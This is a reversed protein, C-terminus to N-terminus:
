LRQGQFAWQLVLLGQHLFVAALLVTLGFEERIDIQGIGLMKGIGAVLLEALTFGRKNGLAAASLHRQPNPRSFM